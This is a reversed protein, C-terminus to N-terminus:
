SRLLSRAKALAGGNAALRKATAVSTDFLDLSGLLLRNAIGGRLLFFSCADVHDTGFMAKHAGEGETFDFYRYRQEAFLRELAAMQLVTGPSLRAQESDYGLFAYVVTEGAIPLHLYAVPEGRLRLIYCRLRDAAALATMEARAAGTEPLGADLLRAQYTRRSLPMAAALYEELEAPTRYETIDLTGGDADALKRAKRKLTSRTKGSFRALYEEYSGDMAVYYRRYAQFGGMVHDPFQALLAELGAQPASLVRYGDLASDGEPLPPMHGEVLQDLSWGLTALDRPVAFLRRSGVVFRIPVTAVASM